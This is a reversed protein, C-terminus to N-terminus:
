GIVGQLAPIDYMSYNGGIEYKLDDMTITTQPFIMSLIIFYFILYIKEM